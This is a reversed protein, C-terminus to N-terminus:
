RADPAARVLVRVGCPGGVIRAGPDRTSAGFRRDRRRVPGLVNKVFISAASLLLASAPILAALAGAATVLGLVWAPYYRQVVLLFSADVQNGHLGPVILLASLGAFFVLLMVIQYLPLLMANRRLTQECRASYTAAMSQPAIFFGISTLLVTSVYWIAGHPAYAPPLTLFYPHNALVLDITHTWSGFFRVPLAIGVFLVACLVLVDKVISGWATGRLGAGFTFLAIVAFAGSVAIATNIRGYGAIGLVIQLGRLQLTVYPVLAVFQVTAVVIGLGPSAYRDVFFDPATLLSREKGVRWIAPLLFYGFVYACAGYALIYYAPAGFGYVWGAAGLFTFSTYIEGAMLVWLLVTGFSRGGVIFQEPDLRLTRVGYLALAVTGSVVLCVIGLAVTPGSM